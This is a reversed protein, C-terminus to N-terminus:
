DLPGHDLTRLATQSEAIWGGCLRLDGEELCSGPCQQQGYGISLVGDDVLGCDGDGGVRDFGCEFDSGTGILGDCERGPRLQGIRRYCEGLGVFGIGELIHRNLPGFDGAGAIDLKKDRIIGIMGSRMGFEIGGQAEGFRTSVGQM